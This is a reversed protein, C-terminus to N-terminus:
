ELPFSDGIQSTDAKISELGGLLNEKLVSFAELGSEKKNVEASKNNSSNVGGGLSLVWLFFMIACAVLMMVHLINRREDEPRSRLNYVVKKAKNKIKERM